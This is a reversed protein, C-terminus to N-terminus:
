LIMMTNILTELRTKQLGKIQLAFRYIMENTVTQWPM